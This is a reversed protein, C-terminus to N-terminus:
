GNRWLALQICNLSVPYSKLDLDTSFLTGPCNSRESGCGQINYFTFKTEKIKLRQYITLIRFWIPGPDTIDSNSVAPWYILIRRIRIWLAPAVSGSGRWKPIRYGCCVILRISIRLLTLLLIASGYWLSIVPATSTVSFGCFCLAAESAWGPATSAGKLAM